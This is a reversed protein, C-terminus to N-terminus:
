AAGGVEKSASATADAVPLCLGYGLYRGAGLLVPGAVPESFELQVHVTSRPLRRGPSRYIPFGAVSPVATVPGAKALVVDPVPLGIHGCARQVTATAQAEATEHRERDASWLGRAVRDLALPTVSAWRRSSRCWRASQLAAPATLPDAPDLHVVGARGLQVDLSGSRSRERWRELAVDLAWRDAETADGPLVLAVGRIRGDAHQSGVFPLPVVALHARESPGTPEGPQASPRHGSLVEPLPDDAHSLIAARVAVTLDLARRLPLLRPGAGSSGGVVRLVQWDSGLLPAAIDAHHEADEYRAMVQPLVRPENGQHTLYARELEDLLGAATVRVLQSGTSSPVLTPREDTEDVVCCSVMSSSHGLRSIRSLLGDLVSVQDETPQADPWRYQVVPDHPIVVPFVRAQKGREEPLLQVGDAVSSASENAKALSARASDGAAKKCLKDLQKRLKTAQKAAAKDEPDAGLSAMVEDLAETAVTIKTYLDALDRVVVSGAENNPVFYTVAARDTAGSVVIEPAPLAEFWELVEREVLDPADADAWTAVMASFLRAPHPPWEPKTRDNFRTAAYREALLEIRIGLM